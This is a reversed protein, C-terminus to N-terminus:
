LHLRVAPVSGAPNFRLVVPAIDPVGLPGKTPVDAKETETDSECSGDGAVAAAFKDMVIFVVESRTLM